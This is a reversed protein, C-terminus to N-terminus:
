RQATQQEQIWVALREGFQKYLRPYSGRIRALDRELIDTGEPTEAAMHELLVDLSALEMPTEIGEGYWLALQAKVALSVKDDRILRIMERHDDLENHFEKVVRSTDSGDPALLTAIDLFFETV